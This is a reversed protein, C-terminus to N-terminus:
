QSKFGGRCKTLNISLVLNQCGTRHHKSQLEKMKFLSMDKNLPCNSVLDLTIAILYLVVYSGRLEMQKLFLMSNSYLLSTHHPMRRIKEINITEDLNEM